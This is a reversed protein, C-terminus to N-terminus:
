EALEWRPRSYRTFLGPLDGELWLELLKTGFSSPIGMQLPRNLNGILIGDEGREIAADMKGRLKHWVRSVKVQVARSEVDLYCGFVNCVPTTDKIILHVRELENDEEPVRLIHGRLHNRM